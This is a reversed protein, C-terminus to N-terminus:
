QRDQKSKPFLPEEEFNGFLSSCLDRRYKWGGEFEERENKEEM